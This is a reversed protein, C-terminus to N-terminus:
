RCDTHILSDSGFLGNTQHFAITDLGIKGYVIGAGKAGDNSHVFTGDAYAGIGKQALEKYNAWFIRNNDNGIYQDFVDLINTSEYIVRSAFNAHLYALVGRVFRACAEDSLIYELYKRLQSKESSSLDIQRLENGGGGMAGLGSTQHESCGVGTMACRSLEESQRQFEEHGEDGFSIPIEVTWTELGAILGSPDVSNVPDNTVYAFMNLSQPDGISASAMGIPDVQTFRSQGSNYTRNVAYDLGIEYWENIKKRNRKQVRIYTRADSNKKRRKLQILNSALLM